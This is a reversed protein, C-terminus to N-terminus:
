LKPVASVGGAQATNAALQRLNHEYQAWSIYAPLRDKLLVEWQQPAAV